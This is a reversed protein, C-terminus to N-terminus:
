YETVMMRFAESFQIASAQSQQSSVIVEVRPNSAIGVTCKSARVCDLDTSMILTSTRRGYTSLAGYFPKMHDAVIVARLGTADDIDKIDILVPKLGGGHSGAAALSEVISQADDASDKSHSDYVIGISTRGPPSNNVFDIVHLAIKIDKLTAAFGCHLPLLWSLVLLLRTSASPRM